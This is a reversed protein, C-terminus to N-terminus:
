KKTVSSSFVMLKEWLEFVCNDIGLFDQNDEISHLIDQFLAMMSRKRSEPAAKKGLHHNFLTLTTHQSLLQSKHWIRFGRCRCIHEINRYTKDYFLTNSKYWSMTQTKKTFRGPSRNFNIFTKLKADAHLQIQNDKPARNM